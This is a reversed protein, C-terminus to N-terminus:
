ITLNSANEMILIELSEKRGRIKTNDSQFQKLNLKANEAVIKSIVLESKYTKNLEEWRSAVNVNDGVVTETVTAGYGMMGVITNGIHIGIGFRLEENFDIKM